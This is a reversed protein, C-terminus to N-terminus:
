ELLKRHWVHNHMHMLAYNAWLYDSFHEKEFYLIIKLKAKIKIKINVPHIFM